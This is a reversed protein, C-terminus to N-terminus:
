YAWNVKELLELMSAEAVVGQDFPASSRVKFFHNPLAVLVLESFVTQQRGAFFEDFRFTAVLAPFSTGNKQLSIEREGLVVSGLHAHLVEQKEAGFQEAAPRALPYFYLTVANQLTSDYRDYAISHDKMGPQYMIMKGRRYPGVQLPFNPTDGVGTIEAPYRTDGAPPASPFGALLALIALAPFRPFLNPM